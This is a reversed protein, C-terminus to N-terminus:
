RRRPCTRPSTVPFNGVLRTTVAYHLKAKIMCAFLQGAFPCDKSNHFQSITFLLVLCVNLCCLGSVGSGLGTVERWRTSRFCIQPSTSLGWLWVVICPVATYLIYMQLALLMINLCVYDCFIVKIIRKCQKAQLLECLQQDDAALWEPMWRFM